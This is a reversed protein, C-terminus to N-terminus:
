TVEANQGGAELVAGLADDGVSLIPPFHDLFFKLLLQVLLAFLVFQGKSNNGEKLM